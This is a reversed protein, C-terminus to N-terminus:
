LDVPPSAMHTGTDYSFLSGWIPSGPGRNECCKLSGQTGMKMPNQPGEQVYLNVDDNRHIDNYDEYVPKEFYWSPPHGSVLSKNPTAKYM